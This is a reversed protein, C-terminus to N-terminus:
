AGIVLYAGQGFNVDPNTTPTIVVSEGSFAATAEFVKTGSTITYEALTTSHQYRRTNTTTVGNGDTIGCSVNNMGDCAGITLAVANQVTNISDVGVPVFVPLFLKPTIGPTNITLPSLSGNCDFTGTQCKAGRIALMWFYAQGTGSTVPYTCNVNTGDVSSVAMSRAVVGAGTVDNIVSTSTLIRRTFTTTLGHSSHLTACFQNAGAFLGISPTLFTSTAPPATPSFVTFFMVGTPSGSLGHAFSQAANTGNMQHQTLSVELDAGGLCIHNLIRATAQVTSWNLTFGNANLSSLDADLLVGGSDGITTFVKSNDHRRLTNTTTAGNQSSVGVSARNSVSTGAGVGLVVSSGSGEGTVMVGFPMVVKPQFGVGTVARTGTTTPSTSTGVSARIDLATAINPKRLTLLLGM